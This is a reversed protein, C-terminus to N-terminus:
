SKKEFPVDVIEAWEKAKRYGKDYSLGELMFGATLEFLKEAQSMDETTIVTASEFSICRDLIDLLELAGPDLNQIRKRIDDRM